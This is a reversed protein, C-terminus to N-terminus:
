ENDTKPYTVVSALLSLLATVGAVDLVGVWDLHILGTGSAMIAASATQAFRKGMRIVAAKAWLALRRKDFLPETM